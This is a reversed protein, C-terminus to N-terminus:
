GMGPRFGHRNLLIALFFFFVTNSQHPNQHFIQSTYHLIMFAATSPPAPCRKVGIPIADAFLLSIEGFGKGVLTPQEDMYFECGEFGLLAEM